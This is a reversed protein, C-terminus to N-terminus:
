TFKYFVDLNNNKLDTENGVKIIIKVNHITIKALRSRPFNNERQKKFKIGSFNIATDNKKSM